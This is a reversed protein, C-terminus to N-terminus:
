ADGKAKRLAARAQGAVQCMNVQGQGENLLAIAECAALLEPAAAILDGNANAEDATIGGGVRDDRRYLVCVTGATTGIREASRTWPGPTHKSM